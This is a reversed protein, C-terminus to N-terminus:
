KLIVPPVHGEPEADGIEVYNAKTAPSASSKTPHAQDWKVFEEYDFQWDQGESLKMIRKYIALRSPANFYEVNHNMMSDMSPRYAGTTCNLAGEYIGIEDKYRDDSLFASWKVTQPDNTFDINAHWGYQKSLRNSEAIVDAAVSSSQTAYEDALFAFGHGGAEHRLVPGFNEPENGYSSYFAVGSQLSESMVTIGGHYRSNVIVGILMNDKTTIEPVKLAYEFCKETNGSVIGENTIVSGLATSRGSGTKGNKSVVRVSYVNFRDRFSKYPEIAFLAEMSERMMWDYTGDNVDKDTYADGMFVVDIGKGRTAKQLTIVTGDRSYDSSSYEDEDDLPGFIDELFPILDFYAIHGFRNKSPDSVNQSCSFIINGNKDIINVFPMSGSGIGAEEPMSLGEATSNYWIDYGNKQVHDKLTRVGEADGWATYLIVDLGADHYKEHMQKLLPLLIASYTCWSGWRYLVTVENKAIIDRYPIQKGTMVDKLGQEPWYGPIDQDNVTFPHQKRYEPEDNLAGQNIYMNIWYGPDDSSYFYDPIQGDLKHSYINLRSGLRLWSQPLAGTFGNFCISLCRDYTGEVQGAATLGNSQGLTEPLPGTMSENNNIGVYGLPMGDFVDPLSTMSTREIVLTTLKRLKNFSPPLTGTIGPQEQVWFHVCSTLGDFCDPFEGKLSFNAYTRNFDLKLEQKDADWSVGDWSALDKKMDWERQLNWQPGGMADYIQMLAAKIREEESDSKVTVECSATKGGDATTVTITATGGSLATVIGEQSVSVISENDSSWTVTKDTANEPMVMVELALTQGKELEATVPTVMVYSVPIFSEQEFTLTIPDVTGDNPKVTAKGTRADGENADVSFVLTGSQMAKTEVFHLWDKASQEIEVTYSTNYQINFEATGGQVPVQATNGTIVIVAKETVSVSCSATKGGDATTVTITASGIKVATVKGSDDVKAIDTASSKWTVSKDSANDPSVTATLTESGGEELTLTTKNLSVGTVAVTAPTPTPDPEPEDPGCGIFLGASLSLVLVSSMIRSFARKM